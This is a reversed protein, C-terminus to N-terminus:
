IEHHESALLDYWLRDYARGDIYHCQRQRGMPRFKVRAAVRVSPNHEVIWTNIAHLGLDRFGVTLMASVARSAYGRGGASKDGLVVWLNATRFDRNINGLGVVGIPRGEDSTFMRVAQTGRQIAIKLWEPSLSQRGEGFDLWQANEKASIWGAAVRLREPTDLPELTM